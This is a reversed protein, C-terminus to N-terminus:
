KKEVLKAAITTTSVVVVGPISIVVSKGRNGAIRLFTGEVGAFPGGLVRVKDGEKLNVEEPGLYQIQETTNGAVAIFSEMERNPVIQPQKGKVSDYAM